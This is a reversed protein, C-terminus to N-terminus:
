KPPNHWPRNIPMYQVRGSKYIVFGGHLIKHNCHPADINFYSVIYKVSDDRCLQVINKALPVFKQIYVLKFKPTDFTYVGHDHKKRINPTDTKEGRLQKWTDFAFYHNSARSKNFILKGDQVFGVLEDDYTAMFVPRPTIIVVGTAILAIVCFLIYNIKRTSFKILVLTMFALICLTLATNSIHPMNVTAGPMSVIKQATALTVNYIQDAWHLPFHIGFVAGITGVIVLPMIAVSFIPLLVLNGILGYLPFSYFHAIVFPATFVTAVLSTMTATFLFKLIKNEPTRPRVVGWFWVLGFIAAFSLQFGAQMVYHPNICFIVLMAMCVNRLSIADRGMIIATFVLSAMLFARMTAVDCGSLFLYFLLGVWACITAPIRAPMRRTIPAVLRFICFFIAFLWGSVLTVHFGSISWVHGIGVATWVSRDDRPVANKYGMVLSDGLFSNARSHLYDRLKAINGGGNHALIQFDKIYGTATLGNFYSWRAYDFSAPGYAPSPRYLNVTARVTDGIKPIDGDPSTSVRVTAARETIQGPAVRIFIRARNDTYDLDKVDGVVVVDRLPRSIQPTSFTHTFAMAYVFGFAFVFVARLLLPVRRIMALAGFLIVFIWPFIINPETIRTFYLAAGFALLFPLWLFLNDSQNNWFKQM